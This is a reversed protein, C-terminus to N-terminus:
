TRMCSVVGEAFKVAAGVSDIIPRDFKASLHEVLRTMGACGLIVSRCNDETIARAIEDSIDQMATSQDDEINLVPVESARVRVCWKEFGHAKINGEIVPVSASLTTVVSFNGGILRALHYSAEGVGLVPVPSREKLEALGTDDFCAIIVLDHAKKELVEQEFIEFVGPLAAEGDQAGQIAPPSDLPNLATIVTEPAAYKKANEEITRTMSSTSNPNIILIRM